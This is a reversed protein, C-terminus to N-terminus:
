VHSILGRFCCFSTNPFFFLIFLLFAFFYSTFFHLSNLAAFNRICLTFLFFHFILPNYIFFFFSYVGPLCTHCTLYKSFFHLTYKQRLFLCVYFRTVCLSHFFTYPFRFPDSFLNVLSLSFYTWLDSVRRLTHIINWLSLTIPQFLTLRSNM